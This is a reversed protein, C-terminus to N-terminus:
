KRLGDVVQQLQEATARACVTLDELLSKEIGAGNRLQVECEGYKEAMVAAGVSAASGKLSHIVAVLEEAKGSEWALRLSALRAPLEALFIPSVKVLMPEMMSGLRLKLEELDILSDTSDIEGTAETFGSKRSDSVDGAVKKVLKALEVSDVPKPLYHDMGGRLYRERDGALASATVAVVVPQEIESMKRIARCAEEGNMLPMSIDMLVLDYSHMKVARVVEEGNAVFDAQYGLFDLQMEIVSRNMENDDAVLIRLPNSEGMSQYAGLDSSTGSRSDGPQVQEASDDNDHKLRKELTQDHEAAVLEVPIRATFTSGQGPTSYVTVEGGLLNVSQQVISLGLGTGGSHVEKELRDPRVGVGTDEVSILLQPQQDNEVDLNITVSGESTFKVANSLLNLVIQTLRSPDTIVLEPFGARKQTYLAVNKSLATQALMDVAEDVIGAVNTAVSEVASEGAEIKTFDLIKNIMSLLVESSANVTELKRRAGERAEEQLMLQVIGLISNLPTRLEHSIRALFVTREEMLRIAEDRAQKLEETREIVKRELAEQSETLQQNSEYLETSKSELLSEAAARALRERELARKLVSDQEKRNSM